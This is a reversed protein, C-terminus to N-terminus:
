PPRTNRRPAHDSSRSRRGPIIVSIASAIETAKPNEITTSAPRMSATASQHSSAVSTVIMSSPWQISIREMSWALPASTLERLQQGVGGRAEDVAALLAHAVLSSRSPSRTRTRGPSLTGTSPTIREPALVSSSAATVPSDRGTSRPSPSATTAPVTLPSPDSRTSTVALPSSVLSEPMMRSTASACDDRERVCCRASRAARRSVETASAEATTVSTAQSTATGVDVERDHAGDGHEDDGARVRQAEGHRQHHRDGGREACAVAQQYAVTTPELRCAPDVHDHEVLGARERETRVADDAHVHGVSHVLVLRDAERGGDFGVGLV